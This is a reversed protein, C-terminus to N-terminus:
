LFSSQRQTNVSMRTCSVQRSAPTGSHRGSASQARPGSLTRCRRPHACPRLRAERARWDEVWEAAAADDGAPPKAAAVSRWIPSRAPIAARTANPIPISASSSRARAVEIGTEEKLERRCADEVTEGIEVFGGPLAYQGEFPPHGRRILLVRGHGDFVVCDATLAPTEPRAMPSGPAPTALRTKLMLRTPAADGAHGARFSTGAPAGAGLKTREAEVLPRPRSSPPKRLRLGCPSPIRHGEAPGLAVRRSPPRDRVRVAAAPPSPRKWEVPVASAARGRM